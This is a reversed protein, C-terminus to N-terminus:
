SARTPSAFRERHAAQVTKMQKRAAWHFRSFTDRVGIRAVDTALWGGADFPFHLSFTEGVEIRKPLGGAFPGMPLHPEALDHIPNILGLKRRRRFMPRRHEIIACSIIVYSPGHNAIDLSLFEPGRQKRGQVVRAVWFSVRLQGKPYIFKSWINWVFGALSIALSGLSIIFAWDGKGM